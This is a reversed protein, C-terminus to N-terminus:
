FAAVCLIIRHRMSIWFIDKLPTGRQGSEAESNGERSSSQRLLDRRKSDLENLLKSAMKLRSDM